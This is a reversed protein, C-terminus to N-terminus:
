RSDELLSRKQTQSLWFGFTLLLVGLVVGAMGIYLSGYEGVDMGDFTWFRWWPSGFHSNNGWQRFLYKGYERRVLLAVGGVTSLSGAGTVSYTFYKLSWMNRSRLMTARNALPRQAAYCGM